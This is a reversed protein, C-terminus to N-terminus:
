DYIDKGLLAEIIQSITKGHNMEPDQEKLFEFWQRYLDPNDRYSVEHAGVGFIGEKESLYERKLEDITIIIGTVTSKRPELPASTLKYMEHGSFNVIKPNSIAGELRRGGAAYLAGEPWDVDEDSMTITKITGLKSLLNMYDNMNGLYREKARVFAPCPVRNQRIKFEQSTIDLNTYGDWPCVTPGHHHGGIEHGQREWSNLIGLKEKDRSIMEAWQPTFLLTLRINYQNALNVFESLVNFM